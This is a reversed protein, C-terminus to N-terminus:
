EVTKDETPEEVAHLQRLLEEAAERAETQKASFTRILIGQSRMKEILAEHPRADVLIVGSLHRALFGNLIREEEEPVRGGTCLLLGCRQATRVKELQALIRICDPEELNPLLVGVDPSRRSKLYRGLLNPTYGLERAAELVKTRTEERIPYDTENIVRSVTAYSVGAEKAIDKITIPSISVPM